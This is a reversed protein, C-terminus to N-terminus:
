VLSSPLDHATLAEYSFSPPPVVRDISLCEDQFVSTSHLDDTSDLRKLFNTANAGCPKWLSPECCLSRRTTCRRNCQGFSTIRSVNNRKFYTVRAFLLRRVLVTLYKKRPLLVPFLRVSAKLTQRRDSWLLLTIGVMLKQVSTLASVCM